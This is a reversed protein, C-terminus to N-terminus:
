IIGTQMSHQKKLMRVVDQTLFYPNLTFLNEAIKTLWGQSQSASYIHLIVM